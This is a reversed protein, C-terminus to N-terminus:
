LQLALDPQQPSGIQLSSSTPSSSAVNLDPPLILPLRQQQYSSSSSSALVQLPPPKSTTCSGGGGGGGGVEAAAAGWTQLPRMEEANAHFSSSSPVAAAPNVSSGIFGGASFMGGPMQYSSSSSTLGGEERAAGSSTAFRSLGMQSLGMQSSLDYGFMGNFGNRNPQILSKQQQVPFSSSGPSMWPSGSGQEALENQSNLRRVAEIMEESPRCLMASSVGPFSPVPRNSDVDGILGNVSRQKEAPFSFLQPPAEDEGVWGPGFSIGDPLTCKLKRSAIKWAVPGLNAAYRALSRAYGHPEFHLGVQM